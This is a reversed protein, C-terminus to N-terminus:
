TIYWNFFYEPYTGLVAFFHAVACWVSPSIKTLFQMSYRTEPQSILKLFCERSISIAILPATVKRGVSQLGSAEEEKLSVQKHDPITLYYTLFNGDLHM